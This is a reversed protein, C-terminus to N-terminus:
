QDSVPTGFLKMVSVQGTDDVYIRYGHYSFEIQVQADAPPPDRFLNEVMDDIQDYFPPLDAMRRDELDAVIRLLSENARDADPEITRHHIRREDEEDPSGDESPDGHSM